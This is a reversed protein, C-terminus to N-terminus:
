CKYDKLTRTFMSVADDAELESKYKKQKEIEEKLENIKQLTLSRIPMGLLDDIRVFKLEQLKSSIVKTESTRFWEHNELYFEIFKYRMEAWSIDGEIKDILALRRAEFQDTRWIVWHELLDEVCEFRTIEGNGDWVTLNESTRKTLGLLKKLEEESKTLIDSNRSVRIVFEFGNKDSLNDYGQIIGRDELKNLREEYSDVFVGVPLETVTITAGRGEKISYCGEIVVQGNTDRSIKGAFNNWFPVLSHKKLEEGSLLKLIAKKIDKPNYALIDTSHGTGMGEAGNILVLPLIPIFFAPEVKMGNSIKHEFLIDDEKPFLERVAKALKAKIYRPASAKKNLRNGWQGFKELLPINNAGAFDQGLGVMTGCLSGVGHGYDTLTAIKASIREITDKPANEGLELMGYLVKRHAEKFGDGIFPIGRINSHGSYLRLNSDFFETVTTEM